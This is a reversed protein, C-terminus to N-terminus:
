QRCARNICMTLTLTLILNLIQTLLLSNFMIVCSIMHMADNKEYFMFWVLFSFLAPACDCIDLAVNQVKTRHDGVLQQVTRLTRVTCFLVIWDDFSTLCEDYFEL